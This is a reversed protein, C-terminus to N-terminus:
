SFPFDALDVVKEVVDTLRTPYAIDPGHRSNRIDVRARVNRIRQDSGAVSEHMAALLTAIRDSRGRARTADGSCHPPRGSTMVRAVLSRASGSELM